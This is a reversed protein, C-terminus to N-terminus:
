VGPFLLLESQPPTSFFLSAIVLLILVIAAGLIAFTSLDGSDFTRAQDTFDWHIHKM